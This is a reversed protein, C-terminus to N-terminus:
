STYFSYSAHEHLWSYTFHWIAIILLIEGCGSILCIYWRKIYFPLQVFPLSFHRNATRGDIPCTVSLLRFVFAPIYKCVYRQVGVRRDYDSLFMTSKKSLVAHATCRWSSYILFSTCSRGYLNILISIKLWSHQEKRLNFSNSSARCASSISRMLRLRNHKWPIYWGTWRYRYLGEQKYCEISYVNRKSLM